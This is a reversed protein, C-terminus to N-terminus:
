RWILEDDDEDEIRRGPEIVIVLVVVLVFLFARAANNSLDQSRQAQSSVRGGPYSPLRTNQVQTSKQGDLNNV